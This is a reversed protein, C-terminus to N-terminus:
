GLLVDIQDLLGVSRRRLSPRPLGCLKVVAGDPIRTRGQVARHLQVVRGHRVTWGMTRAIVGIEDYGENSLDQLRETVIQAIVELPPRKGIRRRLGSRAEPRPGIEPWWHHSSDLQGRRLNAFDDLTRVHARETGEQRDM